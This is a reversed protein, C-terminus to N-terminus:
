GSVARLYVVSPSPHDFPPNSYSVDFRDTDRPLLVPQQFLLEKAVYTDAGLTVPDGSLKFAALFDAVSPFSVQANVSSPNSGGVAGLFTALDPEVAPAVGAEDSTRTLTINNSPLPANLFVIATLGALSLPGRLSLTEANQNDWRGMGDTVAFTQNYVSNILVPIRALISDAGDSDEFQHEYLVRYEVADRFGINPVNESSSVTDLSFELFGAARLQDRNSLLKSNLDQIAQEVNALQDSWLQFRVVAELRNGKLAVINFGARVDEGRRGGIGVPRQTLSFASVSPNPLSGGPAPPLFAMLKSLMESLGNDSSMVKPAVPAALVVAHTAVPVVAPTAPPLLVQSKEEPPAIAPRVVAAKIARKSREAWLAKFADFAM